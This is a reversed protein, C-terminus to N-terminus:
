SCNLWIKLRLLGHPNVKNFFGPNRVSTFFLSKSRVRISKITVITRAIRKTGRINKTSPIPPGAVNMAPKMNRSDQFRTGTMGLGALTSILASGFSIMASPLDFDKM